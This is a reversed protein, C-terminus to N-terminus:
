FETFYLTYLIYYIQNISSIRLPLDLLGVPLVGRAHSSSQRGPVSIGHESRARALQNKGRAFFNIPVALHGLESPISM